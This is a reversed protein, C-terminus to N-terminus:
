KESLEPNEHINGIIEFSEEHVGYMCALPGGKEIDDIILELGYEDFGIECIMEHEVEAYEDFLFQHFRVIDGKYIEKGNRDKLGTYQEKDDHSIWKSDDYRTNWWEKNDPSHLITIQKIGKHYCLSHQEYGVIKNEKILRFKTDRM